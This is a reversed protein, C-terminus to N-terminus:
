LWKPPKIKIKELKNLIVLILPLVLILSFFLNLKIEEWSWTEYEEFSSKVLYRTAYYSCIYLIIYIIYM